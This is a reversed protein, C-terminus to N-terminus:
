GVIFSSQEPESNCMKVIARPQLYFVAMLIRSGVCYLSVCFFLSHDAWATTPWASLNRADPFRSLIAIREAGYGFCADM